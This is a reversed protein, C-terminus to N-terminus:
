YDLSTDILDISKSDAEALVKWLGQFVKKISHADEFNVSGERIVKGSELADKMVEVNHKEVDTVGFVDLYDRSYEQLEEETSAVIDGLMKETVYKIIADKQKDTLEKNIGLIFNSSSSNTVFDTRIKM